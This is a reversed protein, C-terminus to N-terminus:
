HAGAELEGAPLQQMSAADGTRWAVDLETRAARLIEVQGLFGEDEIGPNVALILIELAPAAQSELVDCLRRVGLTGIDNASLDLEQLHVYSGASLAEAIDSAGTDGVKNAFLSLKKLKMGKQVLAAAGITIENHGVDLEQLGSGPMASSLAAAGEDGICNGRLRLVALGPLKELAAALSAAGKPGIGNDSIDLLRLSSKTSLSEVLSQIGEDGLGMSSVYLERVHGLLPQLAKGAGLGAANGDLRLIHLRSSSATEQSSEPLVGNAALEPLSMASARKSSSGNNSEAAEAISRVGAAGIGCNQLEVHAINHLAPAVAAAGDDGLSNSTLILHRLGTDADINQALATAGATGLGKGELDLKQLATNGSLGQALVAIAEDGFSADGVSLSRLSSNSRLAAAFCHADDVSLPHHCATLEHLTTNGELAATLKKVEEHGFKRTRFISISTLKPDNSQLQEVWEDVGAGSGPAGWAAM